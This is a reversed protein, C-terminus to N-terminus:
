GVLARASEYVGRVRTAKGDVYLVYDAFGHGTKLPFERIAIGRSASLNVQGADCVAWGARELLQDIRERARQEPQPL